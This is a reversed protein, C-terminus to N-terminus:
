HTSRPVAFPLSREILLRSTFKAAGTQDLKGEVSNLCWAVIVEPSSLYSHNEGITLQNPATMPTRPPNIPNPPASNRSEYQQRVEAVRRKWRDDDIEDDTQDRHNEEKIKRSLVIRKSRM